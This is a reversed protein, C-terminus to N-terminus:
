WDAGGAALRGAVEWFRPAPPRAHARADGPPASSAARSWGFVSAPDGRLRGPARRWPADPVRSSAFGLGAFQTPLEPPWTALLRGLIGGEREHAAGSMRTGTTM